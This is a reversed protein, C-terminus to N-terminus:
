VNCKIWWRGNAWIFMETGGYATNGQAQYSGVFTNTGQPHLGSITVGTVKPAVGNEDRMAVGAMKGNDIRLKACSALINGQRPFLDAKEAELDGSEEAQLSRMLMSQATSTDIPAPPPEMQPATSTNCGALLISGAFAAVLLNRM